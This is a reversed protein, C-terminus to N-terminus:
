GALCKKNNNSARVKFICDITYRIGTELSSYNTNILVTFEKSPLLYPGDKIKIIKSRLEFRCSQISVMQIESIM